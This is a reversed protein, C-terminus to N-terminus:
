GYTAELYALLSECEEEETVDNEILRVYTDPSYGSLSYGRRQLEDMCNM